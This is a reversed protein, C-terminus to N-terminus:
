TLWSYPNLSLCTRSLKWSSFAAASLLTEKGSSSSAVMTLLTEKIFPRTYTWGEESTLTETQSLTWQLLSFLTSHKWREQEIKMTFKPNSGTSTSMSNTLFWTCFIKHEKSAKNTPLNCLQKNNNTGALEGSFLCIWTFTMGELTGSIGCWCCM